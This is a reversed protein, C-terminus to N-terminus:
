LQNYINTHSNLYILLYIKNSFTISPSFQPKNQIIIIKWVFFSYMQNISLFSLFLIWVINMVLRDLSYNLQSLDATEGGATAPPQTLGICKRLTADYKDNGCDQCKETELNFYPNTSPCLVCSKVSSSYFPTNNPCDQLYQDTAKKSEYYTQYTRFNSHVLNSANASTIFAIEM